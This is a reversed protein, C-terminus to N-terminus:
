SASKMVADLDRRAASLAPALGVLLTTAFAACVAFLWARTDMAIPNQPLRRFPDAAIYVKLLAYAVGSGFITGLAAIAASERLLELVIRGRGAGLSARIAIERERELARAFLLSSVNACAILMLLGVAAGAALLSAHVDRANDEQLPSVFVTFGKPSDPYR